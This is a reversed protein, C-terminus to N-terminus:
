SRPWLARGCLRHVHANDRQKAEPHNNAPVGYGIEIQRQPQPGEIRDTMWGAPPDAPPQPSLVLGRGQERAEREATARAAMIRARETQWAQRRETEALDDRTSERAAIGAIRRESERLRQADEADAYDFDYDFSEAAKGHGYLSRVRDGFSM